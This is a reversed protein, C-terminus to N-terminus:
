GKWSGSVRSSVLAKSVPPVESLVVSLSRNLLALSGAGSFVGGTRSTAPRAKTATQAAASAGTARQGATAGAGAAGGYTSAGYKNSPRASMSGSAVKVSPGAQLDLRPISAIRGLAPVGARAGGAAATSSAGPQQQGRAGRATLPGVKDDQESTTAAADARQSMPAYAGATRPTPAASATRTLGALPLPAPSRLLQSRPTQAVEYAQAGGYTSQSRPTMGAPRGGRANSVPTLMTSDAHATRFSEARSSLQPAADGLLSSLHGKLGQITAAQEMLQRQHNAQQERYTQLQEKLEALQRDKKSIAEQAEFVKGSEVNCKAQGLTVAAVRTGFNLTSISEGVSSSEPAVHMFMLVKAHGSLSDALLETLKSNRFPIHKSKAALSHMVSGLASLSSNIANAERLRDGEVGSKDTRESGALDVLHLCAHSRAGTLRNTGDVIITLVQHSRSSRENMRTEASHRNRAGVRMMDLVDHTTAVAIQTAGPVNLGTPQTSLMDLRNSSGQEEALLDRLTENYIELMQATIIYETESDRKAQLAFLDDLARFNIGRGETDDVCSGTMTHTKGSGTQGYAFICVNFGDMVSRILAQVDEYVQTQTSYGDFIRDFRFVKREGSKDYMAIDSETGLSLCSPAADGTTGLPRVRCFVRISGKLDQVTNYLKKNEERVSAFREELDELAQLRGSLVEVQAVAEAALQSGVDDRSGLTGRLEELEATRQVLLQQAEALEGQLQQLREGSAETLSQVTQRNEDEMKEVIGDLQAQTAVMRETLQELAGKSATVENDKALLRREYELALGNLFQEMINSVTTDYKSAQLGPTLRAQLSSSMNSCLMAINASPQLSAITRPCTPVVAMAQQQQQQQQAFATSLDVTPPSKSPSDRVARTDSGERLLFPGLPSPAVDPGCYLKKLWLLCDAIRQRDDHLDSHLDSLTFKAENPLRLKDTVFSLFAQVNAHSGEASSDVKIIAGPAVRNLTQCLITGDRLAMRFHLDNSYPVDHGTCEKVFDAAMRRKCMTPTLSLSARGVSEPSKRASDRSGWVSGLRASGGQPSMMEGIAISLDM